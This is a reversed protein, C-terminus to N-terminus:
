VALRIVLPEDPVSLTVQKPTLTQSIVQTSQNPLYTDAQQIPSLLNLTVSQPAPNTTSDVGQWLVLYFDGTSKQLLTHHINQTNGSLYYDLYGPTPNAQTDNLLGILNKVATFAPKPSGDVRLLGFNNEQDDAQREDILEYTFTRQIGRNFYELYMRPIYKGSVAETVGKQSAHPDNVANHWGAETAIISKNGSVAQTLPIWKWDLDQDPLNGGAYSHMNGYDVVNSLSGLDKGYYPIAMSPALVSVFSTVPDSKVANYLDTQFQRLGNPFAQGQYTMYSAVDWENPGEIAEVSPLVQKIINVAESPTIGDRPDMVLTSKIGYQALQNLKQFLGPDRGGDRIHRIGLEILRPKIIDDFHGYSTDTYRLHTAVGISDVFSFASRAQERANYSDLTLDYTAATTPAAATVQVYYTGIPLGGNLTEATLGSNASTQLLQGTSDFLSLNADAGLNTLAFNFSSPTSLSLRYTHSPNAAGGVSGSLRNSASLTGLDQATAIFSPTVAPPLAPPTPSCDVPMVPDNPTISATPAVPDIPTATTATSTTLETSVSTSASSAFRSNSNALSDSTWGQQHGTGPILRNTLQRFWQHTTELDQHRYVRSEFM